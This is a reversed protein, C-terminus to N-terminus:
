TTVGDYHFLNKARTSAKLRATDLSIVEAPRRGEESQTWGLVARPQGDVFLLESVRRVPESGRGHLHVVRLRTRPSSRREGQM